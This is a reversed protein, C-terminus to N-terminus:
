IEKGLYMEAVAIDEPTTIKINTYDGKVTKTSFGVAELVSTDDTFISLDYKEAVELFKDIDVGQPTQVAVLRSRDPTNVAVGDNNIEKVTDKLPVACAVCQHNKLADAVNKIVEGMILPRAGDHVLAATYRGKYLAIGNKVSEERCNGGAVVFELKSIAYKEALKKIDAIKDERTVVTISSICDSDEFAKITRAITPVGLLPTFLKDIGQMRTSGGAAVIIVPYGDTGTNNEKFSLAFDLKPM